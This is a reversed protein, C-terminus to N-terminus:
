RNNKRPRSLKKYKNESQYWLGFPIALLPLSMITFAVWEWFHSSYKKVYEKYDMITIGGPDNSFSTQIIDSDNAAKYYVEASSFNFYGHANPILIVVHTINTLPLIKNIKAPLKGATEFFIVPDFSNDTLHVAFAASNGINYITYKVMVDKNEVLHINLIQKYVLLRPGNHEIEGNTFVLFVFIFVNRPSLIIM